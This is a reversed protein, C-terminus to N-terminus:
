DDGAPEYLAWQIQGVDKMESLPFTRAFVHQCGRCQISAILISEGTEPNAGTEYDLLGATMKKCNPCNFDIM